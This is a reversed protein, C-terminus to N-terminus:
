HPTAERARKLALAVVEAIHLAQRDTGQSIQERCSYGSAVIMTHEDAARVAPLLAAEGIKASVAHHAPHFGFAGAMGCCGSEPVQARIGLRKLLAMESTMGFVAKQHCHGHVLADGGLQPAEWDDIRMLFDSFLQCQKSLTAARADDPFLNPLEDRFVSLCAPELGIVPVGASIDNALADMVERLYARATDLMGFDYLPRGCCLQQRPITVTYGLAELVEVAAAASGPQFHNNFTDAWLIVRGRHGPGAATRRRSFWKRFSRRAFKPIERGQAVGGGFKLVASLGPTAALLNVIRPAISALKAWRNIFGMTYAQRPRLRGLYHHHLFEAKYSAM